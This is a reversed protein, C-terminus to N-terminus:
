LFTIHEIWVQLSKQMLSHRSSSSNRSESVNWDSHNQVNGTAKYSHALFEKCKAWCSLISVNECRSTSLIYYHRQFKNKIFVSTSFVPLCDTWISESGQEAQILFRAHNSSAARGFWCPAENESCWVISLHVASFDKLVTKHRTPSISGSWSDVWRAWLM